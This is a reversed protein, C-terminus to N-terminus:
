GSPSPLWDRSSSFGVGPSELSMIRKRKCCFTISSGYSTGPPWLLGVPDPPCGQPQRQWHVVWTWKPRDGCSQAGGGTLHEAALLQCRHGLILPQTLGFLSGDIGPFKVAGVAVRGEVKGKPWLGTVSQNPLESLGAEKDWLFVHETAYNVRQFEMRFWASATGGDM